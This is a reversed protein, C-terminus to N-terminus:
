CLDPQARRGDDADGKKVLHVTVEKGDVRYAAEFAKELRKLFDQPFEIESMM